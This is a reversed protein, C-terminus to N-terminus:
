TGPLAFKKASSVSSVRIRFIGAEDLPAPTRTVAKDITSPDVTALPIVTTQGPVGGYATTQLGGRASIEALAAWFSAEKLDLSIKKSLFTNDYGEALAIVNGSQQKVLGIAKKLSMTGSLTIKSPSIAAEIALQELQKRIRKLRTNVDEEFDASADPLHDLADPGLAIMEKEANDRDEFSASELKEQIAAVDEAVKMEETQAVLVSPLIAILCFLTAITKALNM